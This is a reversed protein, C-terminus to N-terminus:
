PRGPRRVRPRAADFDAAVDRDTHRYYSASAGLEDSSHRLVGALRELASLVDARVARHHGAVDAMLGAREVSIRTFGRAYSLLEGADEAGRGVQRSFQELRGTDVQLGM